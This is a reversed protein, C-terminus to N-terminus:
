FLAEYEGLDEVAEQEASADINVGMDVAIGFYVGLGIDAGFAVGKLKGEKLRHPFICILRDEADAASHLKDIDGEATCEILMDFTMLLGLRSVDVVTDRIDFLIGRKVADEARRVRDAYVAKMMLRYLVYGGRKDRCCERGVTYDFRDLALIHRSIGIILTAKNGCDLPVRFKEVRLIGGRKSQKVSKDRM